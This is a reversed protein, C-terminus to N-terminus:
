YYYGYLASLTNPGAVGDVALGYDAQFAMVADTTIEGYYGTSPVSSPFYGLTKLTDQLAVVEGYPNYVPANAPDYYYGTYDYGYHPDYYDCGYSAQAEPQPAFALAVALTAAPIAAVVKPKFVVKPTSEAEYALHLQTYALSEM